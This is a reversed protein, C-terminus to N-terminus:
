QFWIPMIFCYIPLWLYQIASCAQMLRLKHRAGQHEFKIDSGKLNETPKFGLKAAKDKFQTM